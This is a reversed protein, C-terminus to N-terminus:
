KPQHLEFVHPIEVPMAVPLGRGGTRLLFSCPVINPDPQVPKPFIVDSVAVESQWTAGNEFSARGYRQLSDDTTNREDYWSVFGFGACERGTVSEM